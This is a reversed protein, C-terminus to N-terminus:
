NEARIEKRKKTRIDKSTAQFEKPFKEEIYKFEDLYKNLIYETEEILTLSSANNIKTDVSKDKESDNKQKAARYLHACEQNLKLQDAPEL